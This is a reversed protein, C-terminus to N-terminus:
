AKALGALQLNVQVSRDEWGPPEVRVARTKLLNHLPEVFHSQFDRNDTVGAIRIEISPPALSDAARRLMREADVALILATVSALDPLTMLELRKRSRYLELDSFSADLTWLKATTEIRRCLVISTGWWQTRNMLGVASRGDLGTAGLRKPVWFESHRRFDDGAVRLGEPYHPFLKHADDTWGRFIDYPSVNGWKRYDAVWRADMPRIPGPALDPMEAPAKIESDREGAEPHRHLMPDNVRGGRKRDYILRCPVALAILNMTSEQVGSLLPHRRSGFLVRDTIWGEKSWRREWHSPADSIRSLLRDIHRLMGDYDGAYRPRRAKKLALDIDGVSDQERLLSGFLWVEEVFNVADPDQNLANVRDLFEDLQTQAQSYPTRRKAKARAIAEGSDTLKLTEQDILGRDLCEEFVIAGDRRLPFVSKLDIVNGPSGTREFSQLAQKFVAPRYGAIRMRGDFSIGM